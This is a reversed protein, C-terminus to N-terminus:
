AVTEKDKAPLRLKDRIGRQKSFAALLDRRAIVVAEIQSPNRDALAPLAHQDFLALAHHRLTGLWDEEINDEDGSATRKVAAVFSAETDAFFAERVASAANGGMGAAKKLKTMLTGAAMGASEVLAGVRFEAEEDLQFTPYIHVDFDRPKMNDMSWGGVLLEAPPANSLTNFRHVAAALMRTEGQQGFALGLWNRYSVRGPKPHVPLLEAGPRQRYYPSLPHVWSQYKTGYTKQVVGTMVDGEFRLRLRRPMGFFAEAPHSMDPTVTEGNESTRTKRLWPLAQVAQRAALPEGEPVNLWILRWLSHAGGDIPRMLTVMPGGRRMSTLNGAGGSPAFAQMTYLTVAALPLSLEAYRERKVMLDTNNKITSEGASDIFLM